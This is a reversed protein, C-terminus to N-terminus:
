RKYRKMFNWFVTAVGFKSKEGNPYAHGMGEVIMFDYEQNGSGAITQAYRFSAAGKLRHYQYADKLQMYTTSSKITTEHLWTGPALASEDLPFSKLGAATFMKGDLEGILQVFPRPKFPAKTYPNVSAVQESTIGNITGTTAFAAFTDTLQLSLRTTFQGGNSFGTAYFREDDVAYNKKVFEVMVQVFKMDDYIKQNVFKPDLLSPLNLYNWKTTFERVDERVEGKSYKTEQFVHYRLASGFVLTLGERDAVEQWGSDLFFDEGSGGTGHFAFVVPTKTGADLATPRYILFTRKVGELPVSYTHEGPNEDAENAAAKGKTVVSQRSSTQSFAVTSCLVFLAFYFLTKM